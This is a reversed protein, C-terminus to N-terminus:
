NDAFGIALAFKGGGVGFVWDLANFANCWISYWYTLRNEMVIPALLWGKHQGPTPCAIELFLQFIQTVARM